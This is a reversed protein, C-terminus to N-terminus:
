HGKKQLMHDIAKLISNYERSGKQESRLRHTLRRMTQVSWIRQEDAYKVIIQYRFLHCHSYTAPGKTGTKARLFLGKHIEFNDSWVDFHPNFIIFGKSYSPFVKTNPNTLTTNSNKLRNCATCTVILNKPYFIWEGRVSQPVVHDLDEWYADPNLLVRCYACRRKQEWYHTNKLSKKYPEYAKQGWFKRTIKGDYILRAEAISPRYTKGKLSYNFQRNLDKQFM